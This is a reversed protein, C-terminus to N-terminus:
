KTGIFVITNTSDLKGPTYDIRDVCYNEIIKLSNDYINIEDLKSSQMALDNSISSTANILDDSWGLQQLLDKDIM